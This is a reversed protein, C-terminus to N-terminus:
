ITGARMTMSENGRRWIDSRILGSNSEERSLLEFGAASLLGDPDIWNKAAISTARRFFLYMLWHIWKARTRRWGKTPPIQFDTVLWCADPKCVDAIGPILSNLQSQTFCDLFFPTAVLDFPETGFGLELADSHVWNIQDVDLGTSTLAQKAQAIMQQSQDVVMFQASPMRQVLTELLRGPGEGLMLVRSCPPLVHLHATRAEQLENLALCREM